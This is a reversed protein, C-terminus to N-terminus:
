PAGGAQLMEVAQERFPPPVVFREAVTAITTLRHIEDAQRPSCEAEDLLRNVTAADVDGVTASRRSARVASEKRLAYEVPATHGGGFL